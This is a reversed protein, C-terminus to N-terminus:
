NLTAESWAGSSLRGAAPRPHRGLPRRPPQVPNIVPEEEENQFYGLLINEIVQQDSPGEAIVGFKLV